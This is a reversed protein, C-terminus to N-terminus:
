KNFLMNSFMNSFERYHNSRGVGLAWHRPVLIEDSFKTFHGCNGPNSFPSRDTKERSAVPQLGIAHIRQDLVGLFRAFLRTHCQITQRGARAQGM